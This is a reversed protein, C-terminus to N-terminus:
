ISTNKQAQLEDGTVYIAHFGYPVRNPLGITSVIGMTLADIVYAYSKETIENHVFTILYGDDESTPTDSKPVFVVEGGYIGEEFKLKTEIKGDPSNLDYKVISFIKSLNNAESLYMYRSPRAMYSENIKPYDAYTNSVKERTCKGTNMNFTLKYLNPLTLAVQAEITSRRAIAPAIYPRNTRQDMEPNMLCSYLVINGNDDEWANGNHFIFFPVDDTFEFWKIGEESTAYRPLIGFRAKKTPDLSYVWENNEIMNEPSFVYPLDMFIVYKETLGMDHNYSPGTMTIPVSNSMVGDKSIVNYICYPETYMSGFLFMEGTIPDKKPHPTCWHDLVGNYNNIGLTKIDGTDDVSIAYPQGFDELAMIRGSHYVLGTNSNTYGYSEDLIQFKSRLTHICSSFIGYNGELDGYKYVEARDFDGEQIYRSTGAYRSVYTATGDKFKLGHIM